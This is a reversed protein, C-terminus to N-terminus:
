YLTAVWGGVYHTIVIVLIVIAVHELVVRLIRVGQQKGMYWSFLTVLLMGWCISVLIAPELDLFLVPVVFSLAFVFKSILTSLTAEWIDRTSHVNESEESIHMGVADSFADAISIAIIGGLVAIKSHTSASLGVMMGLTTMVGSTM